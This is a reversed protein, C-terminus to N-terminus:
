RALLIREREILPMASLAARSVMALSCRKWNGSKPCWHSVTGDDHFTSKFQPQWTAKMQESSKDPTSEGLAM